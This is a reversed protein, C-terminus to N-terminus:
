TPREEGIGLGQIRRHEHILYQLQTLYQLAYQVEIGVVGALAEDVHVPKYALALLAEKESHGYATKRGHSQWLRALPDFMLM